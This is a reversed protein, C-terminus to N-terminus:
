NNDHLTKDYCKVLEHTVHEPTFHEMAHNYGDRIMTNRLATDSLVRAIADALEESNHPDIYVSAPGGAEPLSSVNSTIVPTKSLLAEAVPLGFGEYFSPYVLAMARQYLAQLSYNDRLDSIWHVLKELKHSAIMNLIEDKNGRSGGIVVLPIRFAPKLHQYAELILRLNKRKEVSGVFLLFEEPIDYKQLLHNNEEKSTTQYFLPNCSQYIVEIKDPNVGYYQIIDSRTSNSIAIIRDAKLCSNRFKIDYIQRDFFPYTDPLVKFILDHVTVISKIHTKNLNRPIENSLGHYLDIGDKKLQDVISFSRWYSKLVGKALFTRFDSSDAFFNTEPSQILKPTYLLYEHDPYLRQLNRVLSRSYNGLGTFNSYLRKADFGIRMSKQNSIRGM